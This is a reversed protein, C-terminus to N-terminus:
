GLQACLVEADNESNSYIPPGRGLNGVVYQSKNESSLSPEPSRAGDLAPGPLSARASHMDLQHQFAAQVGPHSAWSHARSHVGGCLRHDAGCVRRPWRRFSVTAAASLFRDPLPPGDPPLRLSVCSVSSSTRPRPVPDSTCPRPAPDPCPTPTHPRPVPDPCPTHPRPAPDSRHPRPAPDPYM